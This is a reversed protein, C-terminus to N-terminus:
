YISGASAASNKVSVIEIKGEKDLRRLDAYSDTYPEAQEEATDGRYIEAPTFTLASARRAIIQNRVIFRTTVYQGGKSEEVPRTDSRIADARKWLDRPDKPAEEGVALPRCVVGLANQFAIPKYKLLWELYAPTLDGQMKHLAPVPPANKPVVDPKQGTVLVTDILIKEEGLFADVSKHFGDRCLEDKWTLTTGDITAILSSRGRNIRIVEDIKPNDASKRLELQLQPTNM